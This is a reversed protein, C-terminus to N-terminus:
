KNWTKMEMMYVNVNHKGSSQHANSMDERANMYERWENPLKTKTRKDKHKGRKHTGHKPRKIEQKNRRPM